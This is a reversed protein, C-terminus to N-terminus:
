PKIYDELPVKVDDYILWYFTRKYSQIDIETIIKTNQVQARRDVIYQGRTLQGHLEVSTYAEETSKIISAPALLSTAAICDACAWKSTLPLDKRISNEVFNLLTLIPHEKAGLVDCRWGWTLTNRPPICTEWPIVTIPCKLGRLVVDAAEPDFYVNFEASPTVNGIGLFNGGMTTVSQILQVIEPYMRIALALNTLAGITLITIENPNEKILRAMATVGHEDYNVPSMDPLDTPEFVDGFGDQGNFNDHTRNEISIIPDAAGRYVPIDKQQAVELVRCTNVLCYDVHTNGSGCVIAVLQILNLSHAKLLMFLAWADDYGSDTDLIIRPIVSSM